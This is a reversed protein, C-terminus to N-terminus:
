GSPPVDLHCINICLKLPESLMWLNWKQIEESEANGLWGWQSRTACVYLSVCVVVDWHIGNHMLSTITWLPLLLSLSYSLNPSPLSVSVSLCLSFSLPSLYFENLSIDVQLLYTFSITGRERQIHFISKNISYVARNWKMSDDYSMALNLNNGFSSNLITCCVM